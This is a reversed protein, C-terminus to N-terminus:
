SYLWDRIRIDISKGVVTNKRGTFNHEFATQM